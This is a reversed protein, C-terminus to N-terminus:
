GDRREHLHVHIHPAPMGDAPGGHRRGGRGHARGDDALQECRRSPHEHRLWERGFGPHHAFREAEPGFERDFGPAGHHGHSEPGVHAHEYGHRGHAASFRDERGARGERRQERDRRARRPLRM